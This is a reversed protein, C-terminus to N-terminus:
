FSEYRNGKTLKDNVVLKKLEKIRRILDSKSIVGQFDEFLKLHTM